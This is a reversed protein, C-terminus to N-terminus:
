LKKFLKIAVLVAIILLAIPLLLFVLFWIFGIIGWLAGGSYWSGMMQNGYGNMMNMPMMNMPMQWGYGTSTGFNGDEYHALVFNSLSFILLLSFALITIKM